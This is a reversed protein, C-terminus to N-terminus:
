KGSGFVVMSNFAQSPMGAIMTQHLLQIQRQLQAEAAVKGYAAMRMGQVNTSLDSLRAQLQTIADQADPPVAGNQSNALAQNALRILGNFYSYAIDVAILRKYLDIMGPQTTASVSLIKWVPISSAEVLKFNNIDQTARSTIGSSLTNIATDVKAIFPTISVKTAPISPNLCDTTTDCEFVDVGPSATAPDDGIFDDVRVGTPQVYHWAPQKGAAGGTTAPTIIITGTLSMVLRRDEDDIGSVNKLAKWVVNGPKYYDAKSADSAAAATQAAVVNAANTKTEKLSDLTDSFMNSTAGAIHSYMASMNQSLEAGKVFPIGATMKCANLNMGNVKNAVDQLYEFLSAMQPMSSQIALLFAYSLSTGINQFLATIAAKNIFSFSGAHLDIGGCGIDLSPPSMQALQFTRIPTRAYFGGASYGNMTQGKWSSPPTTNSYGGMSDFWSQMGNGVNADVTAPVLLTTTLLAIYIKRFRM